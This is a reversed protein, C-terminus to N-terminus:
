KFFNRFFLFVSSFLSCLFNSEVTEFCFLSIFFIPLVPTSDVACACVWGIPSAACGREASYFITSYSSSSVHRKIQVLKSSLKSHNKNSHAHLHIHYENKKSSMGIDALPDKYSFTKTSISLEHNLESMALLQISTSEVHALLASILCM